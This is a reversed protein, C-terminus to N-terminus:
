MQRKISTIDVIVKIIGITRDFSVLPLYLAIAESQASEDFEIEGFYAFGIGKQYAKQWWEEDAQYLDTTKNTQCVNLGHMDTVFIEALGDDQDQLAVLTDSCPNTLYPRIFPDIGKSLQWREDLAHIQGESLKSNEKNAAIITETVVSNSLYEGVLKMKLNLVKKVANSIPAVEHTPTEATAILPSILTSVIILAWLAIIYRM